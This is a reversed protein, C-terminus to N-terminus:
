TRPPNYTWIISSVDSAAPCRNCRRGVPACNSYCIDANAATCLYTVLSEYFLLLSLSSSARRNFGSDLLGLGGSRRRFVGQGRGRSSGAIRCRRTCACPRAHTRRQTNLVAHRLSCVYVCISSLLHGQNASSMTRVTRRHDLHREQTPPRRAEPCVTGM